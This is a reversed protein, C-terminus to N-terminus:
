RCNLVTKVLPSANTLDAFYGGIIQLDIARKGCGEPRALIPTCREGAKAPFSANPMSCDAWRRANITQGCGVAPADSRSLSSVAGFMRSDRSHKPRPIGPFSLEGLRAVSKRSNRGCRKESRCLTETGTGSTDPLSNREGSEGTAVSSPRRNEDFQSV